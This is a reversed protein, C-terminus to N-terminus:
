NSIKYKRKIRKVGFEIKAIGSIVKKPVEQKNILCYSVLNKYEFLRKQYDSLIWVDLAPQFNLYLFIGLIAVLVICVFM